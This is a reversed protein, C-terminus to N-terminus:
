PTYKEAWRKEARIEKAIRKKELLLQERLGVLLANFDKPTEDLAYPSLQHYRSFTRFGEDMEDWVTILFSDVDLTECKAKSEREYYNLAKSCIQAKIGSINVPFYRPDFDGVTRYKYEEDNGDAVAMALTRIYDMEDGLVNLHRGRDWWDRYYSNNIKTSKSNLLSEFQHIDAIKKM